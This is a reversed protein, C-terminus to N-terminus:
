QHAFFSALKLQFFAGLEQLLFPVVGIDCLPFPSKYFVPTHENTKLPTLVAHMCLALRRNCGPCACEHPAFRADNVRRGDCVAGADTPSGDRNTHVDRRCSPCSRAPGADLQLSAPPVTTGAPHFIALPTNPGIGVFDSTTLPTVIINPPPYVPLTLM